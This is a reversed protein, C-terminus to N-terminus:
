RMAREIEKRTHQIIDSHFDALKDEMFGKTVMSNKVKGIESHLESRVEAIDSKLESRVAAIEGRVNAFGRDMQEALTHVAELTEATTEQLEKRIEVDSVHLKKLEALIEANSVDNPSTKMNM